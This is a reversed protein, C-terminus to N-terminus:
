KPCHTGAPLQLPRYSTKLKNKVLYFQQLKSCKPFEPLLSRRRGEGAATNSFVPIQEDFGLVLRYVSGGQRVNVRGVSVDNTWTEM